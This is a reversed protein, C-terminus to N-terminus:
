IFKKNKCEKCEYQSGVIKFAFNETILDFFEDREFKQSHNLENLCRMFETKALRGRLSGRIIWVGCACIEIRVATKRLHRAHSELKSINQM